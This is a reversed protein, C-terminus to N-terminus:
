KAEKARVALEGTLRKVEAMDAMARELVTVLRNIVTDDRDKLIQAVRGAPGYNIWLTANVQALMEAKQQLGSVDQQISRIRLSLSTGADESQAEDSMQDPEVGFTDDVPNMDMDSM